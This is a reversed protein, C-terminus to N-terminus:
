PKWGQIVTVKKISLSRDRFAREFTPGLIRMADERCDKRTRGTTWLVDFNFLGWVHYHPPIKRM